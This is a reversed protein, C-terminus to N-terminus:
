SNLRFDQSQDYWAVFSELEDVADFRWYDVAHGRTLRDANTANLNSNRTKDAAYSRRLFRGLEPPAAHAAAETWLFISNRARELALQRRSSTLFGAIYQTPAAIRSLRGALIAEARATLPEAVAAAKVPRMSGRAPSSACGNGVPELPASPAPVTPLVQRTARPAAIQSTGGGLFRQRFRARGQDYANPDTAHPVPGSRKGTLYHIRYTCNGSPHLMGGIVRDPSLVRMAVLADLVKRVQPGLGFFVADSLAEVERVFHDRLQSALLPHRTMDPSGRYDADDVFVPYRLLSTTHVLHAATSFLQSADAIGLWEAVGWHDLQLILNSRMPEGSFAAAAKAGQLAQAISAGGLLLRRATNNANVMQTPGPTIGVLAVKAKANVHDFPAYYVRVPGDADILLRPDRVVPAVDTCLLPAFRPLLNTTMAHETSHNPVTPHGACPGTSADVPDARPDLLRSGRCEDAMMHARRASGAWRCRDKARRSPIAVSPSSPALVEWTSPLYEQMCRSYLDFPDVQLARAMLGIKDMPLRIKGQKIMTIVNAKPFGCCEAVYVQKLGLQEIRSAIFQAITVEHM